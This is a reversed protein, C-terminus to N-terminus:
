AAEANKPLIIEPIIIGSEQSAQEALKMRTGKIMEWAFAMDGVHKVHLSAHHDVVIPIGAAELHECMVWDEGVYADNGPEWRLTFAPRPLSRMADARLLMIGTGVRWVREYRMNAVDSYILDGKFPHKVSPKRATPYCPISRTPCNMALVPRNEQLWDFLFEPEFLMDDDIFLLYDFGNNVAMDVLNQRSQPLLSTRVEEVFWHIAREEGEIKIIPHATMLHCLFMLRLAMEVKMEGRNPIGILIKLQRYESFKKKM